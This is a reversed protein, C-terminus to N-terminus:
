YETYSHARTLTMRVVDSDQQGRSKVKLSDSEGYCHVVVIGIVIADVKCFGAGLVKAGKPVMMSHVLVGRFVIGCATKMGPIQIVVYKLDNM